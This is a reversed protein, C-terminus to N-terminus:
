ARTKGRIAIGDARASASKVKGGKAYNRDRYEPSMPVALSTGSTAPTTNSVRKHEKEKAEDKPPGMYPLKTVKVKEDAM